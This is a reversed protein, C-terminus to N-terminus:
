PPSLSTAEEATLRRWQGKPLEGLALGGIAVRVLRLVEIDFAALLRRIQRNRGEDLVIELWANKEGARLLRASKASLREGHADVGVVMASLQAADPIANAQVHYTKDPRRPRDLGFQRRRFLPVGYRPRARRRGHDGLRATQEADSPDARAGRAAQRRDRDCRQGGVDPIRSRPDDQGVCVRPRRRDVAGSAHALLRRAQVARAGARAQSASASERPHHIRRSTRRATKAPRTRCAIRRRSRKRNRRPTRRPRLRRPKAPATTIVITGNKCTVLKGDVFVTEGDHIPIDYGDNDTHHCGGPGAPDSPDNDQAFAASPLAAIAAIAALLGFSRTFRPM